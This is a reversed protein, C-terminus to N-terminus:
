NLVIGKIRLATMKQKHGNSKRYGKRRKKKFVIIKKNRISDEISAQVKAGTVTPNGIKVDDGDGYMLVNDFEIDDGVDGPLRDTVIKSDPMVKYQKGAIEVIAFM